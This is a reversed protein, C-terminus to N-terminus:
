SGYVDAKSNCEMMVRKQTESYIVSVIKIRKVIVHYAFTKTDPLSSLLTSYSLIKKM